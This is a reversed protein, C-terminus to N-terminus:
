RPTRLRFVGFRYPAIRAGTQVEIFHPSARFQRVINNMAVIRVPRWPRQRMLGTLFREAKDAFFPSNLFLVSARGLPTVEADAQRVRVSTLGIRAAALEIAACRRAVIEVAEFRAPTVCAAYCVFHGYGAGLDYVLDHRDLSLATLIERIDRFSAAEFALHQTGFRQLSAILDAMRERDAEIGLLRAVGHESYAARFRHFAIVRDICARM